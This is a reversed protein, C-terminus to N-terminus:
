YGVEVLFREDQRWEEKVTVWLALFVSRGV